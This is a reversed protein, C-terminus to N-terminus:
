FYLALALHMKLLYRLCVSYNQLDPHFNVAAVHLPTHVM